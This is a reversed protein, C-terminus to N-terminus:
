YALTNKVRTKAKNRMVLINGTIVLTLGIFDSISWNYSEMLSSVFLAVVPFLVTCYGALEPGINKILQLYCLLAVISGPFALYLLSWWYVSSTPVVFWQNNLLMVIFMAITGYIMGIAMSPVIKLGFKNNRKTIVSGMSFILTAIGSLLLGKVTTEQLTINFVEHWFFICLGAIGLLAGFTLNISPKVKFFIYNNAISLFSVASFVVAIVGSLIYHTANYVFVLHISFMSLGMLCCFIHDIPKFKLSYGKYQCWAILFVAAIFARYFISVEIPAHGLQLKIAFWTTGWILVALMYLILNNLTM